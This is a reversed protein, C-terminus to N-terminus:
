ADRKRLTLARSKTQFIPLTSPFQKLERTTCEGDRGQLTTSQAKGRAPLDNAEDADTNLCAALTAPVNRAAARLDRGRPTLDILVRREDAVDRKRTTLGAQEM